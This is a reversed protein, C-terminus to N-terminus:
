KLSSPPNPQPPLPPIFRAPALEYAGIDCGGGQPRSVGRQDTSVQSGSITTCSSLPIANVAPSSALLAVTQTPGGNNELGDPNLGAPVNKMDTPAGLPCNKDDSLNYGDSAGPSFSCTNFSNAFISSKVRFMGTGGESIASGQSAVNGSFTSFAVTLGGSGPAAFFWIAGGDNAVNNGTFTSNVITVAGQYAYIGGGSALSISGGGGGSDFATNGSFTSNAVTVTAADSYIGGGGGANVGAAHNNAFTCDVVTVTGSETFVGGGNGAVPNGATNNTLSTNTLTVLGQANFIGGGNANGHTAIESNQYGIATNDSFSSNSVNLNGANYIGGGLGNEGSNVKAGYGAANAFVTSGSLNLTGSNFIGGGLQTGQTNNSVAVGSLTLTGANFIGGGLLFSGHAITLGSMAVTSGANVIFVGVRDQGSITLNSAGPGVISLAKGLTLPTKLPITAPLMLDFNITYSSPAAAIAARLSGPGSDSVNTVTIVHAV